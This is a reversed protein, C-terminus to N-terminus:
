NVQEKWSVGKIIREVQSSSVEFMYALKQHTLGNNEKDAYLERIEKAQAATLKYNGAAHLVTDASNEKPTGYKLNTYHNNLSYGDLHRTQLDLPREGHFALAVLQHVGVSKSKGNVTLSVTLYGGDNLRPKMWKGRTVKTQLTKKNTVVKEHSWIHGYETTSYLGTYPYPIPYLKNGNLEEM